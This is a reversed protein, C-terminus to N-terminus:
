ESIDGYEAYEKWDGGSRAYVRAEGIDGSISLDSIYATYGFDNNDITVCFAEYLITKEADRVLCLIPTDMDPVAQEQNLTGKIVHYGPVTEVEPLAAEANRGSPVEGLVAPDRVPASM